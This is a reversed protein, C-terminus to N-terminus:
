NISADAIKNIVAIDIKVYAPNHNIAIEIQESTCYNHVSKKLFDGRDIKVMPLSVSQVLINEFSIAPIM